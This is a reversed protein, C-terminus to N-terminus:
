MFDAKLRFLYFISQNDAASFRRIIGLNLNGIVNKFTMRNIKTIVKANSVQKAYLTLMVNEEHRRFIKKNDQGDIIAFPFQHLFLQFFLQVTHLILCETVELATPLFLIRATERAMELDPNIIMTLGLKERLYGADQNNSSFSVM